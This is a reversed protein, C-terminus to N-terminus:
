AKEAPKVAPAPSVGKILDLAKEAYAEVKDDLYDALARLIGSNDRAYGLARNCHACLWGRFKGTSHDHDWCAGTAGKGPTLKVGCADCHGPIRGAREIQRQRRLKNHKNVLSNRCEKCRTMFGDRTAKNRVFASHPKEICCLTCTKM